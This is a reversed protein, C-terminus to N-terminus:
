AALCQGTIFLRSKVLGSNGSNGTLYFFENVISQFNTDHDSSAVEPSATGALLDVPGLSVLDTHQSRNHVANIYRLNETRYTHLGLNESGEGASRKSLKKGLIQYVLAEGFAHYGEIGASGAM